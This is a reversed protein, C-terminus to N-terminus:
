WYGLINKGDPGVKVGSMNHGGYGIHVQFGHSLSTRKDAYGDKDLDQLRWLDPAVALFIDDGYQQVGGAIDTVETQFGDAFVRSADALGDGSQDEVIIVEESEVTLDHWDQISDGNHDYPKHFQGSTEATM